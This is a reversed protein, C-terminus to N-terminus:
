AKIGGRMPLMSRPNNKPHVHKATKTFVRKSEKRSMKARKKTFKSM